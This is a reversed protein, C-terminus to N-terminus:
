SRLSLPSRPAMETIPIAMNSIVKATTMVMLRMGPKPAVRNRVHASRCSGDRLLKRALNRGQLRLAQRSGNAGLAFIQQDVDDAQADRRAVLIVDLRCQCGAIVFARAGNDAM